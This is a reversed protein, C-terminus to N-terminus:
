ESGNKRLDDFKQEVEVFQNWLDGLADLGPDNEGFRRQMYAKWDLNGDGMVSKYQIELLNSFPSNLFQDDTEVATLVDVYMGLLTEIKELHEKLFGLKNETHKSNEADLETKVIMLKRYGNLIGKIFKKKETSYEDMRNQSVFTSVLTLAHKVHFMHDHIFEKGDSLVADHLLHALVFSIDDAIGESSVLDFKPFSPFVERVKELRSLLTERDPLHLYVGDTKISLRYGLHQLLNGSDRRQEIYYALKNFSYTSSIETFNSKLFQEKSDRSLNILRPHLIIIEELLTPEIAPFMEDTKKKSASLKNERDNGTFHNYKDDLKFRYIYGSSDKDPKRGVCKWIEGSKKEIDEQETLLNATRGLQHASSRRTLKPSDKIYETAKGHKWHKEGIKKTEQTSTISVSELTSLKDKLDTVSYISEFNISRLLDFVEDLKESNGLVDYTVGNIKFPHTSHADPILSFDENKYRFKVDFGDSLFM